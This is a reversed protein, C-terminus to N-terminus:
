KESFWERILSNLITEETVAATMRTAAAMVIAWRKGERARSGVGDEGGGSAAVGEKEGVTTAHEPQWMRGGRNSVGDGEDKTKGSGKQLGM